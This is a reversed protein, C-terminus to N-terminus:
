MLKKLADLVRDIHGEVKVPRELWLLEGQKNLIFTSREIGVYDVGFSSKNQLVDFYKCLEKNEDVLLPFNLQYKETFKQHSKIGDPSVGIVSADLAEFEKSYDRFNCAEKTCGPTNDKPYFYIVLFKKSFDKTSFINGYQDTATFEPLRDGVNIKYNM